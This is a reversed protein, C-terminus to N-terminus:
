QELGRAIRRLANGIRLLLRAYWPFLNPPLTAANDTVEVPDPLDPQPEGCIGCKKLRLANSSLCVPCRPILQVTCSPVFKIEASHSVSTERRPAM